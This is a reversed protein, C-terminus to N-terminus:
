PMQNPSPIRCYSLPHPNPFTRFLIIHNMFLSCCVLGRQFNLTWIWEFNPPQTIVMKWLKQPIIKSNPAMFFCGNRDCYWSKLAQPGFITFFFRTPSICILLAILNFLYAIERWFINKLVIPLNAKFGWCKFFHLWFQLKICLNQPYWNQM